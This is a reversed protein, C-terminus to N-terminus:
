FCWAPHHIQTWIDESGIHTLSHVPWTPVVQTSVVGDGDNQVLGLTSTEASKSNKKRYSM